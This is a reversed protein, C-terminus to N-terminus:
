VDAYPGRLDLHNLYESFLKASVDFRRMFDSLCERSCFHLDYPLGSGDSFMYRLQNMMPKGCYPCVGKYEMLTIKFRNALFDMLEYKNEFYIRSSYWEATAYPEKLIPLWYFSTGCPVKWVYAKESSSEPVELLHIETTEDPLYTYRKVDVTEQPEAMDMKFRNKISAIETQKVKTGLPFNLIQM